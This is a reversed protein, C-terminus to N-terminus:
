ETYHAHSEDISNGTNNIAQDNNNSFTLGHYLYVVTQKHIEQQHVNQNNLDRVITLLAAKFMRSTEKHAYATTERPYVGPLPTSLPNHQSKYSFLVFFQYIKELLGM